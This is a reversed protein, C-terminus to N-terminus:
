NNVVAAPSTQPITITTQIAYQSGSGFTSIQQQTLAAGYMAFRSLKFRGYGGNGLNTSDTAGLAYYLNSGYGYDRNIGTQSVALKGDVYGKLTSNQQDYVLAITYWNNLPTAISSAFGSQNQWVSFKLTGGVMEVQSDHWGQNIGQQGLEDFIVGDGTPYVTAIMTFTRPYSNSSFGSAINSSM